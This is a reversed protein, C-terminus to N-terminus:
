ASASVGNKDKRPRGRKKPAAAPKAEPAPAPGPKAKLLRVRPTVDIEFPITEGQFLLTTEADKEGCAGIRELASQLTPMTEAQITKNQLFVLTYPKSM